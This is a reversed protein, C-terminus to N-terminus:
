YSNRDVIRQYQSSSTPPAKSPNLCALMHDLAWPCFHWVALLRLGELCIRRSIILLGYVLFSALRSVTARIGQSYIWDELEVPMTMGCYLVQDFNRLLNALRLNSMAEKLRPIMFGSYQNLCNLDCHEVMSFLEDDSYAMSTPIITCAAFRMRGLFAFFQGVHCV